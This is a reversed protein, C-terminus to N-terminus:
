HVTSDSDDDQKGSGKVVRLKSKAKLRELKWSYYSLELKQLIRSSRPRYMYAYSLGAAVLEPMVAIFGGFVGSLVVFGLGILAFIKGSTPTGWFNLSQGSFQFLLGFVIWLSTIVPRTGPYLAGSFVSPLLLALLVVVLEAALPIGLAVQLFRRKGWRAELFGGLSYLILANFIVELPSTAVFLATVPRWIQFQYLVLEPSFLFLLSGSQLLIGQFVSVVVTLVALVHASNQFSFPSFFRRTM